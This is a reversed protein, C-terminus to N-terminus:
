YSPLEIFFTTGKNEVSEFWIRGGHLEIIKKAFYLGLGTPTEGETGPRQAESFQDFVFGQIEFPIGIGDDKIALLWKPKSFESKVIESSITILGNKPSFKVANSLINHLVRQFHNQDIKAFFELPSLNCQFSINKISITGKLLNICKPIFHSLEIIGFGNQHNEKKEIMLLENLMELAQNCSEHGFGVIELNEPDTLTEKLLTLIGSINGVPNRLDHIVHQFLLQYKKVEKALAYLLDQSRIVGIFKDNEKVPLMQFGNKQMLNAIDIIKQGPAVFPKLYECDGVTIADGPIDHCTILGVPVSCIDLVILFECRNLRARSQEVEDQLSVVQCETEIYPQITM